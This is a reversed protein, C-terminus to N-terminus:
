ENVGVLYNGLKEKLSDPWDDEHLFSKVEEKSLKDLVEKPLRRLAELRKQNPEHGATKQETM